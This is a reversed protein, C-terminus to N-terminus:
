PEATWHSRFLGLRRALCLAARRCVLALCFLAPPPFLPSLALAVLPPLLLSLSVVSRGVFSALGQVAVPSSFPPRALVRDPHAGERSCSCTCLAAHECAVDGLDTGTVVDLSLAVGNLSGSAGLLPLGLSTWCSSFHAAFAFCSCLSALVSAVYTFVHTQVLSPSRWSAWCLTTCSRSRWGTPATAGCGDGLSPHPPSM